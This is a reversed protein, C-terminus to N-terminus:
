ISDEMSIISNYSLIASIVFVPLIQHGRLSPIIWRHEQLFHTSVAFFRGALKKVVDKWFIYMSLVVGLGQKVATEKFCKQKM